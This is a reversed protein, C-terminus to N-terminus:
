KAKFTERYNGQYHSDILSQSSLKSQCQLAKENLKKKFNVYLKSISTM